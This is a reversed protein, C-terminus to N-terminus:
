SCRARQGMGHSRSTAFGRVLSEIADNCQEFEISQPIQAKLVSSVISACKEPSMDIFKVCSTFRSKLRTNKELMKHMDKKCGALIIVTNGDMFEPLTLNNLLQGVAEDGFSGMGLEYAKDIFLVGGRAEEMKEQVAKRTHEQIGLDYESGVTDKTAIVGFSILVPAM